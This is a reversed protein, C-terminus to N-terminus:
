LLSVAQILIKEAQQVDEVKEEFVLKGPGGNNTASFVPLLIAFAQKTAASYLLHFTKGNENVYVNISQM